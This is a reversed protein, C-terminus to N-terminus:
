SRLSLLALGMRMQSFIELGVTVRSSKTKWRAQHALEPGSGSCPLIKVIRDAAARSWEWDLGAGRL